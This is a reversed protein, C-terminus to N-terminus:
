GFPLGNSELRCFLSTFLKVYNIILCIRCIGQRGLLSRELKPCRPDALGWMQHGQESTQRIQYDTNFEDFDHSSKSSAFTADPSIEM